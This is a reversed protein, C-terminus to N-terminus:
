VLVALDNVWGAAEGLIVGILGIAVWVFLSLFIKLGPTSPTLDGYGVTTVTVVAFYCADLGPTTKTGRWDQETSMYVVVITGFYMAVLFLNRFSFFFGSATSAAKPQGVANIDPTIDVADVADVQSCIDQNVPSESGLLLAISESAAMAM